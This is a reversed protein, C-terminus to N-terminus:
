SNNNILYIGLYTNFIDIYQSDSTKKGSAIRFGKIDRDTYYMARALVDGGYVYGVSKFYNLHGAGM